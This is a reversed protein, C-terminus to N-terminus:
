PLDHHMSTVTYRGEKARQAEDRVPLIHEAEMVEDCHRQCVVLAGLAGMLGLHQAGKQQAQSLRNSMVVVYQLKEAVQGFGYCSESCLMYRAAIALAFLAGKKQPHCVTEPRAVRWADLARIGHPLEGGSKRLHDLLIGCSGACPAWNHALAV